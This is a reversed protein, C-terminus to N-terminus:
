RQSEFMTTRVFPIGKTGNNHAAENGFLDLLDPYPRSDCNKRM